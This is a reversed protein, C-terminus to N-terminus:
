QNEQQTKDEAGTAPLLQANVRRAKAKEEGGSQHGGCRLNSIKNGQAATLYGNDNRQEVSRWQERNNEARNKETLDLADVSPHDEARERHNGADHEDRASSRSAAKM